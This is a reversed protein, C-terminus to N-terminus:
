LLIYVVIIFMNWFSPSRILGVCMIAPQPTFYCTICLLICLNNLYLISDSHYIVQTILQLFTILTVIIRGVPAPFM